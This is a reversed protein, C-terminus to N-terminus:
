GGDGGGRMPTALAEQCDNSVKTWHGVLCEQKLNTGDCFKHIDAKCSAIIKGNADQLSQPEKSRDQAQLSGSVVLGAFLLYAIKM